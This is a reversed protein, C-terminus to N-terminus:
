PQARWPLVDYYEKPVSVSIVQGNTISDKYERERKCKNMIDRVLMNVTSKPDMVVEYIIVCQTIVLAINTKQEFFDHRRAM